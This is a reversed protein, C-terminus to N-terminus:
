RNKIVGDKNSAYRVKRRPEPRYNQEVFEGMWGRLESPLTVGDVNEGSDAWRTGENYSVTVYEPRAEEVHLRWLVFLKPEPSTLNLYYGEAEDRALKLQLGPFVVQLQQEDRVIVSAGSGASWIDRVIGKVEWRYPLWSSALKIREMIVEVPYTTAAIEKQKKM